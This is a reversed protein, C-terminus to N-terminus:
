WNRSNRNRAPTIRQRKSQLLKVAGDRCNCSRHAPVLNYPDLPDGGQALGIIHHVTAALRHRHNVRSLEYDIPLRCFYCPTHNYAGNALCEAAARRWRSGTRGPGGSVVTVVAQLKETSRM